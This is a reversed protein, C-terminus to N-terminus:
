SRRRRRPCGRPTRGTISLTSPPAFFPRRRPLAVGPRGPRSVVPLPRRVQLRRLVGGLLLFFPLLELVRELKQPPSKQPLVPRPEPELHRRGGRRVVVLVVVFDWLPRRIWYSPCYHLRSGAHERVGVRRPRTLLRDLLDHGRRLRQRGAAADLLRHCQTPTARERALLPAGVRELPLHPLTRSPAVIRRLAAPAAARRRGPFARARAASAARIRNAEGGSDFPHRRQQQRVM